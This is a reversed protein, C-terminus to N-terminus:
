THKEIDHQGGERLFNNSLNRLHTKRHEGEGGHGATDRGRTVINIFTQPHELQSATKANTVTPTPLLALSCQYVNACALYQQDPNM